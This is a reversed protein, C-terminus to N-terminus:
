AAIVTGWELEVPSEGLSIGEIESDNVHHQVCYNKAPNIQDHSLLCYGFPKSPSELPQRREKKEVVPEKDRGWRGM